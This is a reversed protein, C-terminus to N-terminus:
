KENWGIMPAPPAEPIDGYFYQFVTNLDEQRVNKNIERIKSLVWSIKEEEPVDAPIKSIAWNDIDRTGPPVRIKVENIFYWMFHALVKEKTTSFFELMDGVAGVKVGEIEHYGIGYQALRSYPEWLCKMNDAKGTLLFEAIVLNCERIAYSMLAKDINYIAIALRASRILEPVKEPITKVISEIIKRNVQENPKASEMLPDIISEFEGPKGTYSYNRLFHLDLLGPYYKGTLLWEYMRKNYTQVDLSDQLITALYKAGPLSMIGKLVKAALKEEEKSQNAFYQEITKIESPYVQDYESLRELLYYLEEYESPFTYIAKPEILHGLEPPYTYDIKGGLEQLIGRLITNVKRITPVNTKQLAPAIRKLINM